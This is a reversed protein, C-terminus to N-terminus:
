KSSNIIIDYLNQMKVPDKKIEAMFLDWGLAKIGDYEYYPGKRIVLDLQQATELLDNVPDFGEGYVIFLETKGKPNGVKNKVVKVTVPHGEKGNREEPAKARVELRISANFQLALGGPTTEPNGYMQGIKMRIQNIFILSAGAKSCAKVLRPLCQSMLRATTGINATGDIEKNAAASPILTAVSDVVIGCVIGSECAKEVIDLAEEGNDPQSSFLKDKNLGLKVAYEMDFSHEVDIYAIYKDPYAKQMQVMMQIALTSKGSSELGYIEMIRGEPIGGGMVLDLSPLGSSVKPVTSVVNASCDILANEGHKKNIQALFEKATKPGKDVLVQKALKENANANM